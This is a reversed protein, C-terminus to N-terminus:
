KLLELLNIKDDEKHHREFFRAIINQEFRQQRPEDAGLAILNIIPNTQQHCSTCSTQQNSQRKSILSSSTLSRSSSSQPKMLQISLPQHITQWLLAQQKKNVAKETQQWKAILDKAFASSKSPMISKNQYTPVLLHDKKDAFDIQTVLQGTATQWQYNLQYKDSVLHCTQCAISKTHMNLFSRLKISKTHAQRYHCSLCFGSNNLTKQKINKEARFHFPAVDLPALPEVKDIEALRKTLIILEEQEAKSRTAQKSKQQLNQASQQKIIKQQAIILSQVLQQYLPEPENALATDNLLLWSFLIVIIVKM